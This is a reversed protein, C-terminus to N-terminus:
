DRSRSDIDFGNSVAEGALCHGNQDSVEHLVKQIKSEVFCIPISIVKRSANATNAEDTPFVRFRIGPQSYSSPVSRYSRYFPSSM